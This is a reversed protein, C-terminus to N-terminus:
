FVIFTISTPEKMSNYGIRQAIQGMTVGSRAGTLPSFIAGSQPFYRVAKVAAVIGARAAPGTPGGEDDWRPTMLPGRPRGDSEPNPTYAAAAPGFPGDGDWGPMSAPGSPSNPDDPVPMNGTLDDIEEPTLPPDPPGLVDDLTEGDNPPPDPIDNVIQDWEVDDIKEGGDGLIRDITDTPSLDAPSGDPNIAPKDDVFVVDGGLIVSCLWKNDETNPVSGGGTMIGEPSQSKGGPSSTGGEPRWRINVCVIDDMAAGLGIQVGGIPNRGDGLGGIGPLGFSAGDEGRLMGGLDPLGSDGPIKGNSFWGPIERWASPQMLTLLGTFRDYFMLPPDLETYSPKAARRLAAIGADRLSRHGSRMVVHLCSLYISEIGAISGTGEVYAVLNSFMSSVRGRPATILAVIGAEALRHRLWYLPKRQAMRVLRLYTGASGRLIGYVRRSHKRALIPSKHSSRANPM